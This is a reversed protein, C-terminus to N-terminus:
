KQTIVLRCTEIYYNVSAHLPSVYVDYELNNKEKKVNNKEM